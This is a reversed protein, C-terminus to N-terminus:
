TWVQKINVYMADLSSPILEWIQFDSSISELAQTTQSFLNNM